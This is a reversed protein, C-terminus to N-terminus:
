TTAYTHSLEKERENTYKSTRLDFCAIKIVITKKYTKMDALILGGAKNKKLINRSPPNYSSLLTPLM